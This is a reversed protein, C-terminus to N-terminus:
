GPANLDDEIPPLLHSLLKTPHHLQRWGGPEEVSGEGQMEDSTRTPHSAM